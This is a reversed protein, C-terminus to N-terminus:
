AMELNAVQQRLSEVEALLASLRTELYEARDQEPQVTPVQALAAAVAQAAIDDALTAPAQAASASLAQLETNTLADAGGVREYVYQSIYRLFETTAIVRGDRQVRGIAVQQQYPQIQTM